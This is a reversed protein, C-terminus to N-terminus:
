ALDAYRKPRPVSAPTSAPAQLSIFKVDICRPCFVVIHKRIRTLPQYAHGQYECPQLPRPPTAPEMAVQPASNQLQFNEREADAESKRSFRLKLTV